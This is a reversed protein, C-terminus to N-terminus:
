LFSLIGIYAVDYSESENKGTETVPQKDSSTSENRSPQEASHVFPFHYVLGEEHPSGLSSKWM